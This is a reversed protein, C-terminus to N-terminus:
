TEDAGETGLAKKFATAAKETAEGWTVWAANQARSKADHAAKIAAEYTAFAKKITDLDNM